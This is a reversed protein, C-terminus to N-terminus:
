GEGGESKEIHKLDINVRDHRHDSEDYIWVVDIVRYFSKESLRVKDGIRPVRNEIHHMIKKNGCFGMILVKGM